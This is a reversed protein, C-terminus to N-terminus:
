VTGDSMEQLEAAKAVYHSLISLFVSLVLGGLILFFYIFAFDNMKLILFVTNGVFFVGLDILLILACLKIMGAVEVTFLREEKVRASIKWAIILIIFCPISVAWYFSLLGWSQATTLKTLESNTLSIKILSFSYPYWLACVTVGCLAIIVISCRVWFFLSKATMRVGKVSKLMIINM